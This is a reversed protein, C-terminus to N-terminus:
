KPIGWLNKVSYCPSIWKANADVAQNQMKMLDEDKIKKDRLIHDELELQVQVQSTSNIKPPTIVGPEDVQSVETMQFDCTIIFYGRNEDMM